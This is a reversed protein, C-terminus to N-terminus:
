TGRLIDLAGATVGDDDDALAGAADLLNEGFVYM